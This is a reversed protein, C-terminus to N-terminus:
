LTYLNLIINVVIDLTFWMALNLTFPHAAICACYIVVQPHSSNYKGSIICMCLVMTGFVHYLSISQHGRIPANATTHALM